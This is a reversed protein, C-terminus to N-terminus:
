HDTCKCENHLATVQTHLYLQHSGPSSQMVTSVHWESTIGTALQLSVTTCQHLLCQFNNHLLHSCMLCLNHKDWKHIKLGKEKEISRTQVDGWFHKGKGKQIGGTRVPM